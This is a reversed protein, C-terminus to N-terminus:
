LQRRPCSGGCRDHGTEMNEGGLTDNQLCDGGDPLYRGRSRCALASRGDRLVGRDLGSLPRAGTATGGTSARKARQARASGLRGWGEREGGQPRAPPGARGQDPAYRPTPRRRRLAREAGSQVPAHRSSPSVVNRLPLPGSSFGGPSGLPSERPAERSAASVKGDVERFQPPAVASAGSRQRVLARGRGRGHLM